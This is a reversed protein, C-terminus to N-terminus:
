SNRMICRVSIKTNAMIPSSAAETPPCDELLNPNRYVEPVLVYWDLQWATSTGAPEEAM